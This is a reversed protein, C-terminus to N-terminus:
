RDPSYWVVKARESRRDSQMDVVYIGSPLPRMDLHDNSVRANVLRGQVDCIALGTIRENLQPRLLIGAADLTWWEEHIPTHVTDPPVPPYRYIAGTSTYAYVVGPFAQIRRLNLTTDIPFELWNQGGDGTCFVQGGSGAVWLSDNSYSDLSWIELEHPLPVDQWTTGTDSSHMLEGGSGALWINAGDSWEIDRLWRETSLTMQWTRGSDQCVFVEMGGPEIDVLMCGHAADLFALNKVSAVDLFLTDIYTYGNPTGTIVYLKTGDEPYRGAAYCLQGDVATFRFSYPGFGGLTHFTMGGQHYRAYRAAATMGESRLVLAGGDATEEVLSHDCCGAGPGGSPGTVRIPEDEWDNMTHYMAFGTGSSPSYFINQLGFGQGPGTMLYHTGYGMVPAGPSPVSPYLRQWQAVLSTTSLMWLLLLARM